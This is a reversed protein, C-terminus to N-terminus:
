VITKLMFSHNEADSLRVSNLDIDVVKMDRVLDGVKYTENNIMAIKSKDSIFIGNLQLGETKKAISPAPAKIIPMPELKASFVTYSSYIIMLGLLMMMSTALLFRLRVKPLTRDDKSLTVIPQTVQRKRQTKKLADYIISM